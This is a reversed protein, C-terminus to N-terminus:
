CSIDAEVAVEFSKNLTRCSAEALVAILMLGFCVLGILSANVFSDERFGLYSM